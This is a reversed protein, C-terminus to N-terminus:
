LENEQLAAACWREIKSSGTYDTIKTLVAELEEIRQQLEKAEKIRALANDHQAQIVVDKRENERAQRELLDATADLTKWDNPDGQGAFQKNAIRPLEDVMEAVEDPLVPSLATIADSAFDVVAYEYPSWEDRHGAYESTMDMLKNAQEILDSKM